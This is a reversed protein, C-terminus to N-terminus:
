LHRGGIVRGMSDAGVQETPTPKAPESSQSVKSSTSTEAVHPIATHAPTTHPPTSTPHASTTPVGRKVDPATVPNANGGDSGPDNDSGDSPKPPAGGTNTAGHIANNSSSSTHISSSNASSSSAITSSNTSGAGPGLSPLGMVGGGDGAGSGASNTANKQSHKHAVTGGVAGGVIAGIIVVFGVAILALGKTTRWFPVRKQEIHNMPIPPVDEEALRTRGPPHVSKRTHIPANTAPSLARNPVPKENLLDVNYGEQRALNSVEPSDKLLTADYTSM